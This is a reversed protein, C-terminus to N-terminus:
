IPKKLEDLMLELRDLKNMVDKTSVFETTQKILKDASGYFEEICKVLLEHLPEHQPRNSVAVVNNLAYSELETLRTEVHIEFKKWDGWNGARIAKCEERNRMLDFDGVKLLQDVLDLLRLCHYSMKIDYGFKEYSVARNSNDCKHEENWRRVGNRLRSLQQFCYGKFSHFMKMSLFLKRNDRLMDAVTTRYTVLQQRVFLVETLAPSGNEVLHFFNTISHWAAECTKGHDLTIRKGVGKCEKNDFSPLQDFGLIFGYSQPYLSKHQDMIIGVIDDDSNETQCGYAHSGMVCELLLNDLMWKEQPQFREAVFRATHTKNLDM